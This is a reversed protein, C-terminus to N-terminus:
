DELPEDMERDGNTPTLPQLRTAAADQSQLKTLKTKAEEVLAVDGDYNEVLGELTAKANFLDGQEAFIDALLITSKALWYPYNPIEQYTNICLTKAIELERLIYYLYAVQYRAEASKESNDLKIVEKFSALAITHNKDEIAMKGKYFYANTKHEKTANPNSVVKDATAYVATPQNIRWASRLAGLQANLREEGEPAITELISYYQYSKNFDQKHNYAIEAAKFLSSAYYPSNGIEIVEEYSDFAAEYNKLLFYAESRNYKAKLSYEGNPFKKLYKNYGIIAKEYNGNEYQKEAARFNILDKDGSSITGGHNPVSELFALYADPDGMEIYIEEIGRLAVKAEAATPNNRFIRKYYSLADPYNNQNYAILGMKLLTANLLTSSPYNTSLSQFTEVALNFKGIELYTSGLAYLGDDAYQSKPYQNTLEELVLIKEVTKGRLGEIMAKQYLAYDSGNYKKSVVENYYQLAEAYENQKFFMDGARLIADPLIQKKVYDNDIHNYDKRIDGVTKSFYNAATKYKDQKLYNYGQIYNATYASSEDPLPVSSAKSLFDDFTRISEAYNNERHAMEGLWYTALATTRADLPTELAKHFYQKASGYNQDNYYQVGRLYAVKQYTEHMKPTKNPMKEISQLAQAYDRTNLFINSMFAQGENFYPSDVPILQIANLADRHQKLEYSLKAYNYNSENSIEQNFNMKRAKGFATRASFRNGVKLYCDGLAYMAYQGLESNQDTLAEFNKIAAQYNGTKYQTFGLQYYDEPRLQKANAAYEELYPLANNYQQKEFFAQGLLQRIELQNRLEKNRLAKGGYTIVEDFKGEAFYIQTIYYPVVRNYKKTSNAKEFSALADDYDGDFFACMGYYYNAPYYYDNEKEDKIEAFANKANANSKKVFYSYGLKFLVESKRKKSLENTNILTYFKIAEAYKKSNYYYNGMEIKAENALSSPSHERIFDLILREGEPKELRVASRAIYLQAMDKLLGDEGENAQRQHNYVKQFEKVAQAYLGENYFSLGRKFIVNAESYVSTSQALLFNGSIIFCMLLIYRVRM